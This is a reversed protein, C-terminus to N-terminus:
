SVFKRSFLKICAKRTLVLAAYVSRGFRYLKSWFSIVEILVILLRSGLLVVIALLPCSRSSVTHQYLLVKAVLPVKFFKLQGRVKRVLTPTHISILLRTHNKTRMRLHQLYELKRLFSFKRLDQQRMWIGAHLFNLSPTAYPAIALAHSWVSAWLPWKTGRLYEVRSNVEVRFKWEPICKWESIGNQEDAM